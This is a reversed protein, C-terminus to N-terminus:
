YSEESIENLLLGDIWFTLEQKEENSYPSDKLFEQLIEENM